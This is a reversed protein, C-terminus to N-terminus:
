RVGASQIVASWRRIESGLVGAPQAPTGPRPQADIRTLSQIVDPSQLAVLIEHNLQLLMAPPAKRSAVNFGALAGGSERVTPVQPLDPSCKERLM